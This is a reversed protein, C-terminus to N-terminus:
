AAQVATQERTPVHGQIIAGPGQGLVLMAERVEAGDPRSQCSPDRLQLMVNVAKKRDM